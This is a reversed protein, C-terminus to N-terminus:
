GHCCFPALTLFLIVARGRVEVPYVSVPLVADLDPTM